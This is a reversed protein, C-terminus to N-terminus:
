LEHLLLDNSLKYKAPDEPGVVKKWAPSSGVQIDKLPLARGTNKNFVLRVEQPEPSTSNSLTKVFGLDGNPLSILSGIPFVGQHRILQQIFGQDLQQDMRLLRKFALAHPIGARYSRGNTMADFVDIVAALKGLPTISIGKLHEPHGSGDLRECNQTVIQLAIEPTGPQRSLIERTVLSHKHMVKAEQPSLSGTKAFIREPILGKGLDHCLGAFIISRLYDKDRAKPNSKDAMLQDALLVAVSVSHEYLYQGTVRVRTYLLLTQRSKLLTALLQEAAQWASTIELPRKERLQGVLTKVTKVALQHAAKPTLNSSATIEENNKSSSKDESTDKHPSAEKNSKRNKTNKSDITPPEFLESPSANTTNGSANRANDRQLETVVFSIKQEKQPELEDFQCGLSSINKDEDYGIHRVFMSLDILDGNPFIIHCVPFLINKELTNSLDGEIDVQCGQASLDRLLGEHVWVPEQQAPNEQEHLADTEPYTGIRVKILLSRRVPARYFKRRQLFHLSEPFPVRYIPAGDRIARGSAQLRSASIRCGDHYSEFNFPVAKAMLDDGWRPTIEDLLFYGEKYNVAIVMSTYRDAVADFSIKLPTHKNELRKLLRYKGEQTSILQGQPKKSTESDETAKNSETESMSM